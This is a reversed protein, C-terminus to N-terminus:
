WSNGCGSWGYGHGTSYGYGYSRGCCSMKISSDLLLRRHVIFSPSVRSNPNLKPDSLMLNEAEHLENVFFFFLFVLVYRRLFHSKAVRNFKTLYRYIKENLQQLAQM